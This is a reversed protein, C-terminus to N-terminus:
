SAAELLDEPNISASLRVARVSFVGPHRVWFPALNKQSQPLCTQHGPNELKALCNEIRGDMCEPSYLAQM